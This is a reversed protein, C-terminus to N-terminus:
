SYVPHKIFICHHDDYIITLIAQKWLFVCIIRLSNALISTLSIKINSTIMIMSQQSDGYKYDRIQWMIVIFTLCLAMSISVM